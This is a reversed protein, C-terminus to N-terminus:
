EKRRKNILYTLRVQGQVEHTKHYFYGPLQTTGVSFYFGNPTFYQVEMGWKLKGFGGYGVQSSLAWGNDWRKMGGANLQPVVSEYLWYQVGCFIGMGRNYEHFARVFVSPSLPKWYSKHVTNVSLSDKNLPAGNLVGNTNLLDNLNVGTWHLTSDFSTVSSQDNWAVIGLHKVGITVWGKGRAFGENYQADFCFGLGNAGVTKNSSSYYTGNYNLSLTDANSSTYFSSSGTSLERYNRGSVMSLSVGSYTKKNYWGVGLARLSQSRFTIGSLDVSQGVFNANGQALLAFANKNIGLSVDSWAEGHLYLGWEKRGFLSDLGGYYNVRTDLEARAKGYAPMHAVVRDINERTIQGGFLIPDMLTRDLFDSGVDASGQMDLIGAYKTASTDRNLLWLVPVQAKATLGILVLIVIGIRKM